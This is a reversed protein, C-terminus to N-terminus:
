KGIVESFVAFVVSSVICVVVWPKVEPWRTHPATLILAGLWLLGAIFATGTM